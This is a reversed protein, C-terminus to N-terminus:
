RASANPEGVWQLTIPVLSGRHDFALLSGDLYLAIAGAAISELQADQLMRAGTIRFQRPPDDLLRTVITSREMVSAVLLMGDDVLGLQHYNHVGDVPATGYTRCGRAACLASHGLRPDAAIAAAMGARCRTQFGDSRESRQAAGTTLDMMVLRREPIDVFAFTNGDRCATAWPGEYGLQRAPRLTTGEFDASFLSRTQAPGVYEFWAIGWRSIHAFSPRAPLGPVHRPAADPAAILLEGNRSVLATGDPWVLGRDDIGALIHESFVRVTRWTFPELLRAGSADQLVIVPMAGHAPQLLRVDRDADPIAATGPISGCTLTRSALRCVLSAAATSARRPVVLFWSRGQDDDTVDVMRSEHNALEIAAGDDARRTSTGCGAAVSWLVCSSTCLRRLVRRRQFGAGRTM